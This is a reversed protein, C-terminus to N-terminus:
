EKTVITSMDDETEKGKFWKQLTESRRLVIYLLGFVLLMGFFGGIVCGILTVFSASNDYVHLVAAPADPNKSQQCVVQTGNDSFSTGKLTWVALSEETKMLCSGYLAQAIGEVHGMPCTLSYNGHSGYFTFTFNPSAKPVGCRFVATKGVAVTVDAPRTRYSLAAPNSASTTVATTTQASSPATIQLAVLLLLCIHSVRRKKWMEGKGREEM